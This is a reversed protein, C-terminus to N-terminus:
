GPVRLVPALGFTEVLPDDLRAVDREPQPDGAVPEPRHEVLRLAFAHEVPQAGSRALLDELTDPLQIRHEDLADDIREVPRRRLRRHPRTGRVLAELHLIATAAPIGVNGLAEVVVVGPAHVVRQEPDVLDVGTPVPLPYT